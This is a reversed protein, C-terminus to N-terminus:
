KKIMEQWDILTSFGKQRFYDEYGSFKQTLIFDGGWAGLSKIFVPCDAFYKDKATPIGLFESLETEHLTL